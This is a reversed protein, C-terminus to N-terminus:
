DVVLSGTRPLTREGAGRGGGDVTDGVLRGSEILGAKGVGRIHVRPLPHRALMGVRLGVRMGM